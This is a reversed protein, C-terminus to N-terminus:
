SLMSFARLFIRVNFYRAEKEPHLMVLTMCILVLQLLHMHREAVSHVKGTTLLNNRIILDGVHALSHQLAAIRSSRRFRPNSQFIKLDEVNGRMEAVHRDNLPDQLAEM